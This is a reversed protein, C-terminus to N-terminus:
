KTNIKKRIYMSGPCDACIDNLYLTDKGAITASQSLFGKRNIYENFEITFKDEHIMTSDKFVRYISDKTIEIMYNNGIIKPTTIKRSLAETTKVWIWTGTLKDLLSFEERLTNEIEAESPVTQSFILTTTAFIGFIVCVFRLYKIM